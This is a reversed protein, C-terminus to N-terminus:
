VNEQQWRGEEWQYITSMKIWYKCISAELEKRAETAKLRGLFVIASARAERDISKDKMIARLQERAPKGMRKVDDFVQVRHQRDKLRNVIQEVDSGAAFSIRINTLLILIIVIYNM